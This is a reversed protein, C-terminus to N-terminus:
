CGHAARLRERTKDDVEGTAELQAEIQFRAVAAALESAPVAKSALYGLNELRQRVGAEGSVPDVRGLALEYREDGILVVALRANPPIRVEIKGNADTRGEHPTGDVDLRYPEDARPKGYRSLRLRFYEPVGRRRFVHQRGTACSAQGVRLDPIFVDDGAALVNPDGRERRLAANEPHEWITDAFFGYAFAITSLCEDPKARHM